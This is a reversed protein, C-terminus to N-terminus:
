VSFADEVLKAQERVHVAKSGSAPSAARDRGAYRVRYHKAAQELRPAIFSWAGMNLPEEQCWVLKKNDRTYRGVIERVLDWHFPYLQEM